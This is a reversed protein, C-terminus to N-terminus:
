NGDNQHYMGTMDQINKGWKYGTSRPGARFLVLGLIDLTLVMANNLQIWSIPAVEVLV